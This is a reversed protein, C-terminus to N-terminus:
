RATPFAWLVSPILRSSLTTHFHTHLLPLLSGTLRTHVPGIILCPAAWGASRDRLQADSIAAHSYKYMGFNEELPLSASCFQNRQTSGGLASASSFAWVPFLIFSRRLLEDRWIFFLSICINKILFFCKLLFVQWTQYSSQGWSVLPKIEGRLPERLILHM